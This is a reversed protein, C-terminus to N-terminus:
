AAERREAVGMAAGVISEETATGRPLGAVIRGERMVLVRDCLHVLELTDSSVLIIARGEEAFRRLMLYIERKTEVDVGRTPDNMLLIQPNRPMWKALAVKQQNGGSLAQVPRDLDGKVSLLAALGDTLKREGRADRLALGMARGFSPLLMNFRISHALLLGERKRDAPVYAIGRRNAATVSRALGAAGGLTASRAQAPLAGYLGLLLDEQGQGVLGGIGLIEGRRLRLAAERVMGASLGEVELVTEETVAPAWGPFLDGADRGVMLRVFGDPTLGRMPQDATREGDKLITVYDCLEMVEALRHSIYLIAVGESRLRRLLAKLMETETASLSSTPEDLILVRPKRYLAKAIEVLQRQGLPLDRVPRSLDGHLGVLACADGARAALARYDVRGHRREYAGLGINEAISLHSVLSLEQHVVAVGAERAAAPSLANVSRGAIELRGVDPTLNGSLINILTSKGAGNEGMLAHIRGGHLEISVGHLVPNGFFAKSVDRAALRVDTM